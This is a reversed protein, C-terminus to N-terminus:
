RWPTSIQGSHQSVTPASGRLLVITFMGIAAVASVLSIILSATHSVGSSRGGSESMREKLDDIKENLGDLQKAMGAKMENMVSVFNIEIKQTVKDAAAMAANLATESGALRTQVVRDLTATAAEASVIKQDALRHNSEIMRELLVQLADVWGKAEDHKSLMERRIEIRANELRENTALSPDPNPINSASLSNV